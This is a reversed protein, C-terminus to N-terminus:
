QNNVRFTDYLYCLAQETGLVAQSTIAHNNTIPVGRNGVKLAIECCQELLILRYAASKLSKGVTVAGHNFMLAVNKNSLLSTIKESEQKSDIVGEFPVYAIDNFFVSSEQTLLPVPLQMTSWAVINKPHYHLVVNVDSRFKYIESHLAVAAWNLNYNAQSGSIAILDNPTCKNYNIGLPFTWWKASDKSDRISIQGSSTTIYGLQTLFRAVNCLEEGNIM